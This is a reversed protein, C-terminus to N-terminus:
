KGHKKLWTNMEKIEAEQAKIVSDALKRLEPDKGYKLEIRAMDVAGQHHPIMGRVFDADADGSYTIMMDQHMKGMADNFAKSSAGQNGMPKSMDMGSVDDALAPVILALAFAGALIISKSLPM